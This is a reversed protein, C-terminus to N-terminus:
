LVGATADLIKVGALIPTPGAIKPNKGAKGTGKSNTVSSRVSRILPSSELSGQRIDLVSQAKV